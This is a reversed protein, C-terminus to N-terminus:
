SSGDVDIAGGLAMRVFGLAAAYDMTRLDTTDMALIPSPLALPADCPELLAQRFEAINALEMHGPHRGPSRARREFREVLAHSEGTLWVQAVLASHKHALARLPAGDHAESFNSELILSVGAHLFEGAIVRQLHYTAMGLRRSEVRNSAGLTDYLSEKLGDKHILPLRLDVALQRALTTKGSAPRGTIVFLLPKSM